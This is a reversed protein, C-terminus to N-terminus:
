YTDVVHCQVDAISCSKFFSFCSDPFGVNTRALM